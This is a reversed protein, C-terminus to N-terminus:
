VMGRRRLEFWVRWTILYHRQPPQPGSGAVVKAWYVFSGHNVVPRVLEVRHGGRALADVWPAAERSQGLYSVAGQEAVTDELPQVCASEDEFFELPLGCSM